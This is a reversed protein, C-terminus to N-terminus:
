LCDFLTRELKYNTILIETRVNKLNQREGIIHVNLNREKVQEMIFENNFESIAFMCKSNSLVEFLDICDNESFSHSYNNGTGLYPPDAYILTNKKEIESRFAINKMLERFDDNRWDIFSFYECVKDIRDLINKKINNCANTKMTEPKGLYGWNSYFLFFVAKLVNDDFKVDKYEEWITKHIPLDILEKVLKDKNFKVTKWLNSVNDDIDNCINYKALQKNFFIGGAGFFMDIFTTHKPFYKIIDKAIRRKNGLRTLIM